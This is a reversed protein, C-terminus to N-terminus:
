RDDRWHLTSLRVTPDTVVAGLVALLGAALAEVTPRDFLATAYTLYCHVPARGPPEYFSLTLDTRAVGTPVAELTWPLEGLRAEEHHVVMVRPHPVGVDAFPVEQREFASLDTERVRALLEAFSPDGATDTRLVLTNAFCGVLGELAEETRGAALTGIPLDEGAGARTLLAAFAGQLVMFMSTGTQRALADVARHLPGPLLLEVVDGIGDSAGPRARDSPLCLEPLSRLTGRWWALQRAGASGLRDASWLAYDAYTVPLPEWGPARGDVRSSYATALDRLLPVVSWEDVGRYQATLLLARGDELLRARLPPGDPDLPERAREEPSGTGVSLVPGPVPRQWQGDPVTRLPEHREVVDALAAGLAAADFGDPRRLLLAHDSASGRPLSRQVPAVPVREPRSRPVLPPGAARGRGALLGAIGAVTPADFVDRVVLEVGLVARIRGLLRVAAMSHGGLAFFDDHIGVDPLGLVEGFLGTLLHQEPTEARADGTLSARDPAPLARRDLKGNPTLPLPGDLVHVAAPVM